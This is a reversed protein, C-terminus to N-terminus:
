KEGRWRTIRLPPPEGDSKAQRHVTRVILRVKEALDQPPAAGEKSPALTVVVAGDGEVSVRLPFSAEPTHAAGEYIWPPDAPDRPRELAVRM